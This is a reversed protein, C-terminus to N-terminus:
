QRKTQQNQPGQQRKLVERDHAIRQDTTGDRLRRQMRQEFDAQFSQNAQAAMAQMRQQREEPPLANM